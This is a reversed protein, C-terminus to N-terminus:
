RITRTFMGELLEVLESPDHCLGTDLCSLHQLILKLSAKLPGKRTGKLARALRKKFASSQNLVVLLANLWCSRLNINATGVPKVVGEVTEPEFVPLPQQQRTREQRIGTPKAAPGPKQRAPRQGQLAKASRIHRRPREEDPADATLSDSSDDSMEDNPNPGRNKRTSKRLDASTQRGTVNTVGDRLGVPREVVVEMEAILPYIEELDLDFERQGGCRKYFFRAWLHICFKGTAIFMRCDCRPRNGSPHIGTCYVNDDYGASVMLVRQLEPPVSQDDENPPRILGGSWIAFGDNM